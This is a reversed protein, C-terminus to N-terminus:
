VLLSLKRLVWLCINYSSFQYIFIRRFILFFQRYRKRVAPLRESVFQKWPKKEDKFIKSKVTDVIKKPDLGVHSPRLSDFYALIRNKLVTGIEEPNFQNSSSPKPVFDIAGYELAKFTADAGHQTLVSLMMVPIGLKRKQLEQLASLGDMVPMEVDLIVIDPRLKTALEICDVGTKGTAIVQIRTEKQIQDSIINRVLLSDDIIVVRISGNAPTGVM